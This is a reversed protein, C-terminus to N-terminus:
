AYERRAKDKAIGKARRDARKPKDYGRLDGYDEVVQRRLAGQLEKHGDKRMAARDFTVDNRKDKAHYTVSDATAGIRITIGSVNSRINRNAM